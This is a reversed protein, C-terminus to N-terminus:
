QGVEMCLDGMRPLFGSARLRTSRSAIGNAPISFTSQSRSSTAVLGARSKQIQRLKYPSGSIEAYTYQLKDPDGHVETYISSLKAERISIRRM